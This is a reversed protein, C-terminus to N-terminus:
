LLLGMYCDGNCTGLERPCHHSICYLVRWGPKENDELQLVKRWPTDIRKDLVKKNFVKVCIKYCEKGSACLIGIVILEKIELFTSECDGMCPTLYLKPFPDSCDPNISGLSYDTLLKLESESLASRWKDLIRAVLRTSRVGLQETMSQVDKFDTGAIRQVHGITSIGSNLLNEEIVSYGLEKSLDLHSGSILPEQLLWFLSNVTRKKQVEFLAWVKFLNRYLVPFKSLKLKQPDM